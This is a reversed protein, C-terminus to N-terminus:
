HRQRPAIMYLYWMHYEGSIFDNIFAKESFAPIEKGVGIAPFFSQQLAYLFSWFIFATAMRVVNKTFIKKPDCEKDKNLFFVGSIMVFTPVVWRCMSNFFNLTIYDSSLVGPTQNIVNSCLHAMPVGCTAIVRLLDLWIVRKKRGQLAM